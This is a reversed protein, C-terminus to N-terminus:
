KSARHDGKVREKYHKEDTTCTFFTLEGKAWYNTKVGAGCTPCLDPIDSLQLEKGPKYNPNGGKGPKAKPKCGKKILYAEVEFMLTTLKEENEPVIKIHADLGNPTTFFLSGELKAMCKVMANVAICTIRGVCTIAITPLATNMQLTKM